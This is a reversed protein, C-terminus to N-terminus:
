DASVYLSMLYGASDVIFCVSVDKGVDDVWVDVECVCREM